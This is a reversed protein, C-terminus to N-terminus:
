IYIYIYKSHHFRFRLLEDLSLIYICLVNLVDPPWSLNNINVRCVFKDNVEYAHSVQKVFLVFSFVINAAKPSVSNSILKVFLNFDRGLKGLLVKKLYSFFYVLKYLKVGHILNKLM